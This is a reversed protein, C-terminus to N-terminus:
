ALEGRARLEAIQQAYLVRIARLVRLYAESQYDLYTWPWAVFVGGRYALTAEAYIGQGLYLRHAHDKTTALVFKGLALYGPDLNIARRPQAGRGAPSFEWELANTLLKISALEGPDILRQFSLFRRELGEGFEAEYYHTFVFPIGGARYDVPGFRAVLEEEARRFAEASASFMPVVLKVPITAHLQGM